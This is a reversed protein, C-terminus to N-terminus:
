MDWTGYYIRNTQTDIIGFMANPFPADSPVSIEAPSKPITTSRFIYFGNQMQFNIKKVMDSSTFSEVREPILVSEPARFPLPRWSRLADNQLLTEMEQPSLQYIYLLFGDGMAGYDDESHLISTNQSLPLGFEKQFKEIRSDTKFYANYCLISVILIIFLGTISYVKKRKMICEKNNNAQDKVIYM